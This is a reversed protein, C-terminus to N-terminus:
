FARVCGEVTEYITTGIKIPAYIKVNDASTDATLKVVMSVLEQKSTVYFRVGADGKKAIIRLQEGLEVPKPAGCLEYSGGEFQSQLEGKKFPLGSCFKDLATSVRGSLGANVAFVALNLALGQLDFLQAPFGNERTVALCKNLAFVARFREILVSDLETYNDKPATSLIIGRDLTALCPKGNLEFKALYPTFVNIM